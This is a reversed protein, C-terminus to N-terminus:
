GAAAVAEVHQRGEEGIRELLEDREHHRFQLPAPEVAGGVLASRQPLVEPQRPGRASKRTSCKGGFHIGARRLFRSWRLSGRGFGRLSCAAATDVAFFRLLCPLSAIDLSRTASHPMRIAPGTGAM